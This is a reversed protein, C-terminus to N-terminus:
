TERTEMFQDFLQEIQLRFKEAVLQQAKAKPLIMGILERTKAPVVLHKMPVNSTFESISVTIRQWDFAKNLQAFLYRLKEKELVKELELAAVEKRAFELVRNDTSIASRNIFSYLVLGELSTCRSLAVYVQGAAFSAGADIIAREFTLGQSKHITIAWAHRIPFQTFSGLEEEQIGADGGEYTYRINKWTEKELKLENGDVMVVIEEDSITTVTALKGNYFRKEPSPDNKIFMVQAGVRLPLEIDTPFSKESFENKVEGKFVYETGPLKSLETRNIADARRNHTTLTIYKEDVPVFDPDFRDNLVQLQEANLTNTRVANLVDIFHQENQRYIKKLEIYLPPAEEIIKANFFFPSKYCEQLIDWETDSVVPPLQFLDGIYLVQVGGFPVFPNKRFQRLIADIADLMDCRVMSVEDIILLELEQLLERKETNFRINKFLSHKDTTDSGGEGFRPAISRPVYPGFPLQFFSHMTVGGANIAAVGTPAVVITKKNLRGRIYKLFTTKGTGAKGTLFIHRSTNTVLEAALQFISNSSDTQFM